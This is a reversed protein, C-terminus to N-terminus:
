PLLHRLKHRYSRSLKVTHGSDLTLFYEGNIHSRMNKVRKVNIITSRHIRHLHDPDLEAELRKMTMRMIHTMGGAHVCMYDGAADIWDIDEQKVWTTHGGDRIALRAPEKRQISEAGQEEAESRRELPGGTLDSLVKLLKNRQAQRKRQSQQVRLKALARELRDDKVPKLLYDIANAEFARVAPEDLATVFIISPLVENRLERIVDFGSMGPMQIDLFVADPALARIKGVAERGDRAEAIVDVCGSRGLRHKLSRRAPAEDDVILAKIKKEVSASLPFAFRQHWDSHPCQQLPSELENGNLVDLREMTCASVAIPRGTALPCFPRGRAPAPLAPVCSVM